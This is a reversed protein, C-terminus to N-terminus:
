NSSRRPASLQQLNRREYAPAAPVRKRIEYEHYARGEATRDREMFRTRREGKTSGLSRYYDGVPRQPEDRYVNSRHVVRRTSRPDERALMVAPQVPEQRRERHGGLDLASNQLGTGLRLHALVERALATIDYNAQPGTPGKVNDPRGKISGQCLLGGCCSLETDSGLSNDSAIGAGVVQSSEESDSM